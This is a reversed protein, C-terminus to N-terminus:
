LCKEPNPSSFVLDTKYNPIKIDTGMKMHIQGNTKSMIM